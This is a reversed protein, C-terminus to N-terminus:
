VFKPGGMWGILVMRKGSILPHVKHLSDTPFIIVDGLDLKMRDSNAFGDVMDTPTMALDLEGGEYDDKSSLSLIVTLKRVYGKTFSDDAVDCHWDYHDGPNDYILFQIGNSWQKLDYQFTQKNACHVFHAMMGAVWCDTHLGIAKCSRVTKDVIPDETKVTAEETDLGSYQKVIAEAVEKPLASPIKYLETNKALENSLNKGVQLLKTGLITSGTM